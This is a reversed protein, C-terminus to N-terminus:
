ALSGQRPTQRVIGVALVVTVAECSSNLLREQGKTMRTFSEFRSIIVAGCLAKLDEYCRSIVMRM